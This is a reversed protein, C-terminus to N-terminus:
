SLRGSKIRPLFAYMWSDGSEFIFTQATVDRYEFDVYVATNTSPVYGTDIYSTGDSEIYASPLTGSNDIGTGCAALVVLVVCLVIGFKRLM